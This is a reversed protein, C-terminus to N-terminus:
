LGVQKLFAQMQAAKDDGVRSSCKLENLAQGAKGRHFILNGWRRVEMIPTLWRHRQLIPYHYKITDYPLFVRSLLYRLKGGQKQQQIVVRNQMTGYVGGHLIYEEMQRTVDTHETGGFWVESLQEAREAFTLLGGEALLARRRADDHPVRHNLIWIDIFPRIGCGGNVFHKAMHAIHYFYFMEDPMVYRYQSGEHPSVSSWVENLVESAGNAWEEEMLRYHLEIHVGGPSHLSVDHSAQKEALYGADALCSVARELESEQILVDIDCSTRLWPESYYQRLVAGKLPIFKIQARELAGSMAELDYNIKVYRFVALNMEQGFAKQIDEDMEAGSIKLAYGILHALDHKKSLRFLGVLADRGLDPLHSKPSPHLVSAFLPFITQEICM